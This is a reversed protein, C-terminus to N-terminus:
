SLSTGRMILQVKWNQSFGQRWPQPLLCVVIQSYLGNRFDCRTQSISHGMEINCSDQLSFSIRSFTHMESISVPILISTANYTVSFNMREVSRKPDGYFANLMNLGTGNVNQWQDLPEPLLEVNRFYLIHEM